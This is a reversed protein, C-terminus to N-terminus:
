QCINKFHLSVMEVTMLFTLTDKNGMNVEFKTIEYSLKYKGKVTFYISYLISYM